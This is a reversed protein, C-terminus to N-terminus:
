LCILLCALLMYFCLRFFQQFKFRPLLWCTATKEESYYNKEGILVESFNNEEILEKLKDTRIVWIQKNSVNVLYYIFYTAKTTSLGSPKGRNKSEIVM